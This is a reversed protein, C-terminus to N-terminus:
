PVDTTQTARRGSHALRRATPWVLWGGSLLLTLGSVILGVNHWRQPVFEIRVDYDGSAPIVFGMRAYGVPFPTAEGDPYVARWSPAYNEAVVLAFPELAGQVGAILATRSLRDVHVLPPAPQVVAVDAEAFEPPGGGWGFVNVAGFGNGATVRLRLNEDGVGVAVTSWKLRPEGGAAIRTQALTRGSVNLVEVLLPSVEGGVLARLYLKSGMPVDGIVFEATRSGLAGPEIWAFGLGYDYERVSLDHRGTAQVWRSLEAASGGTAEWGGTEASEPRLRILREPLACPRLAGSTPTSGIMPLTALEAPCGSAGADAVVILTPEGSSVTRAAAGNLGYVPWWGTAAYGLGAPAEGIAYLTAYEDEVLMVFESAEAVRENLELGERTDHVVLLRDAGTHRVARALDAAELQLIENLFVSNGAHRWGVTPVGALSRSVPQRLVRTDDWVPVREDREFVVARTSEDGDRLVVLPQEYGAPWPYPLWNTVGDSWLFHRIAPTVTAVAAVALVVLLVAAGFRERIRHVPGELSQALVGVAGGLGWAFALALLGSLKDPERLARGGPIRSIVFGTIGSGAERTVLVELAIVTVAFTLLLIAVGARTRGFVSIWVLSGAPLLGVIMWSWAAQGGPRMAISWVPNNTLTLIGPLSAYGGIALDDASASIEAPLSSSLWSSALVPLVLFMELGILMALGVAGLRFILRTADWSWSLALYGLALGALIAVTFVLYHPSAAAFWFTLSAGVAFRVSQRRVALMALGLVLPLLSYGVLLGLHEVRAIAWPNLAYFLGATLAGANTALARGSIKDAMLQFLLYMSAFAMLSQGVVLWRIMAGSSGGFVEMVLGAIGVVPTLSMHGLASRGDTALMPYFDDLVDGAILPYELDRQLLEGPTFLLRAWVMVVLGLGMIMWPVHGRAPWSKEPLRMPRATM